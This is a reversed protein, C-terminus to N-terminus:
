LADLELGPPALDHVRELVLPLADRLLRAGERVGHGLHLRRPQARLVEVELARDLRERLAVLRRRGDLALELLDLRAASVAVSAMAFSLDTFVAGRPATSTRVSRPSQARTSWRM